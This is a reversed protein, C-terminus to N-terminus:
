GSRRFYKGEIVVSGVTGPIGGAFVINLVDCRGVRVMGNRIDQNGSSTAGKSNVRSMVSNVFVEATPVPIATAAQNTSIIVQDIEWRQWANDTVLSITGGGSADLTVSGGRHLEGSTETV